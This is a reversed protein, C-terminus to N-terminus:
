VLFIPKLWFWHLLGKKKQHPGMWHPLNFPEWLGPTSTGKKTQKTDDPPSHNELILVLINRKLAVKSICSISQLPCFAYYYFAKFLISCWSNQWKITHFGPLHHKPQPSQRWKDTTHTDGIKLVPSYKFKLARSCIPQTTDSIILNLENIKFTFQNSAM